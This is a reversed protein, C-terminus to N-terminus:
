RLWGPPVGARRAQDRLREIALRANAVAETQKEFAAQADQNGNKLNEAAALKIEEDNLALQLERMRDRWWAEDPVVPAASPSGSSVAIPTAVPLPHERDYKDQAEQRRKLDDLLADARAIAESPPAPVAAPEATPIAPSPPPAQPPPSCASATVFLWLSARLLPTNM